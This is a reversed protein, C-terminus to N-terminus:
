VAVAAPRLVARTAPRMSVGPASLGAALVLVRAAGRWGRCSTAGVRVAEAPSWWRGVAEAARAVDGVALDEGGTVHLLARRATPQGPGAGSRALAADLARGVPDDGGAAFGAGVRAEGGGLVAGLRPLDLDLWCRRAGHADAAGIAAALGEVALRLDVDAARLAVDLGPVAGLRSLADANDLAVLADCAAALRPRADAARDRAARTEFPFPTYGFGLVLAGAARALDAVVPAAGAGTGGALGTVLVVLEAAGLASRLAPAVGRAAAAALAADGGAGLGGTGEALLVRAVAAGHHALGSLDQGSTDIAVLRAGPVGLDALREVANVGAGGVGAVVLRPVRSV